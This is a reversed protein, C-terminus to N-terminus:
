SVLLLKYTWHLWLWYVSLMKWLLKFSSDQLECWAMFSGSGPYDFCDQAFPLIISPFRNWVKLCIISSYYYFIFVITSAYKTKLTAKTLCLKVDLFSTIYLFNTNLLPTIATILRVRHNMVRQPQYAPPILFLKHRYALLSRSNKHLTYYIYQHSNLHCFVMSICASLARIM